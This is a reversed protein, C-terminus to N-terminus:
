NIFTNISHMFDPHLHINNHNSNNLILATIKAEAGQLDQKANFAQVLRVSHKNPIVKDDSAILLLVQAAVNQVYALSNFKDKILLSVPLFPYHSSAISAISDYPTILVLHLTPRKSALAVAVGTGLSRGILSVFQHKSSVYDYIDNAAHLISEENPTGSSGGYGPYNVYYVTKGAVAPAMIKSSDYVNEANGGFYIIAHENDQETIILKISIDASKLSVVNFGSQNPKTTPFYLLQRQYLYMLILVLM